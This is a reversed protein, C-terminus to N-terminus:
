PTFDHETKYKEMFSKVKECEECLRRFGDNATELDKSAGMTELGYAANAAQGAAM